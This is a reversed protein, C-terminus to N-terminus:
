SAFSPYETIDKTPFKPLLISSLSLTPILFFSPLLQPVECLTGGACAARLVLRDQDRLPLLQAGGPGRVERGRRICPLETRLPERRSRSRDGQRKPTSTLSFPGERPPSDQLGARGQCGDRRSAASMLATNLQPMLCSLLAPIVETIDDINHQWYVNQFYEAGSFSHRALRSRGSLGRQRRHSQRGAAAAPLHPAPTRDARSSIVNESHLLEELASVPHCTTTSPGRRWGHSYVKILSGMPM